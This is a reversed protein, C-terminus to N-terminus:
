GTFVLRVGPTSDTFSQHSDTVERDTVLPSHEADRYESDSKTEGTCRAELEPVVYHSPQGFRVGKTQRSGEEIFFQLAGHGEFYHRIRTHFIANM